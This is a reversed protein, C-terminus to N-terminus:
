RPSGLSGTSPLRWAYRSAIVPSAALTPLVALPRLLEDSRREINEVYRVRDDVGGVVMRDVEAPRCDTPQVASVALEALAEVEPSRRDRFRGREVPRVVFDIRFVRRNGLCYEVPHCRVPDVETGRM